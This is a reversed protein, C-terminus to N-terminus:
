VVGLASTGGSFSVWIAASGGAAVTDGLSTSATGGFFVGSSFSGQIKHSAILSASASLSFAAAAAFTSASTFVSDTAGLHNGLHDDGSARWRRM